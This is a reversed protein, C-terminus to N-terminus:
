VHSNHSNHSVKFFWNIKKSIMSRDLNTMDAIERQSKGELYYMRFIRRTLSDKISEVFNEAAECEEELKEIQKCYRHYKKWNVGIVAQPRPYGSHYNLITDNDVCNERNKLNERLEWIEEKKSRYEELDRQTM